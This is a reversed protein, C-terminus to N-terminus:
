QEEDYKDDMEDSDPEEAANRMEVVGDWTMGDHQLVEELCDILEEETESSSGGDCNMRLRWAIRHAQVLCARSNDDLQITKPFEM